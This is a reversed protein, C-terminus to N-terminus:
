CVTMMNCSSDCIPSAHEHIALKAIRDCCRESLTLAVRILVGQFISVEVHLTEIAIGTYYSVESILANEETRLADLNCLKWQM